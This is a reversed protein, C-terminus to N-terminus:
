CHERELRSRLRPAIASTIDAFPSNLVCQDPLHTVSRSHTLTSLSIFIFPFSSLLGGSYLSPPLTCAFGLGPSQARPMRGTMRIARAAARASDLVLM